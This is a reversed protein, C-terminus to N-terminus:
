AGRSRRNRRTRSPPEVPVASTQDDPPAEAAPEADQRERRADGAARRGGAHAAHHSLGRDSRYRRGARDRRGQRARRHLRPEGAARGQQERRDLSMAWESDLKLSALEVYGNIKTEAGPARLTAPASACAHREQHRLRAQVPAINTAARPSRRACARAGRRRDGGQRGQHDEQRRDRRGPAASRVVAVPSRRRWALAHGARETRRGPRAPELGRGSRHLRSRVSGQRPELRHRGRCLRRAQRGQPRRARDLEAGNGRPSLHGLRRVGRRVSPRHPRHDVARGQRGCGRAHRRSGQRRLRSVADQGQAQDRRRGKRDPWALLRAVPWVESAGAGIAGLMEETSPTRHWAVLVGLLSPLSITGASGSLAFRTKAGSSISIPAHRHCDEGAIARRHDSRSRRRRGQKVLDLMLSEVSRGGASPPAEFGILTLALSADQSVM